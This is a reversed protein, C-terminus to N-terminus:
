PTPPRTLRGVAYQTSSATSSLTAIPQRCRLLNFKSIPTRCIRRMEDICNWAAAAVVEFGEIFLAKRADALETDAVAAVLARRLAALEAPSTGSATILPLGPASATHGITRIGQLLEPAARQFGALTVCDIAAIDARGERVMALSARHSGSVVTRAFFSTGETNEDADSSAALPAVLARLANCGSHSDASNIAVTRGHLDEISRARDESRVVLESRYRIGSCGPANYRFAGVVQVAGALSTVLPYGCTQSLLLRPDRWHADLDAPWYPVEPVGQLGEARMAAALGRWWARLAARDADYMPLAAPRSFSM